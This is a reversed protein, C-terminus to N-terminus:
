IASIKCFNISDWHRGRAVECHGNRYRILGRTFTGATIKISRLCTTAYATCGEDVREKIWNYIVEGRDEM